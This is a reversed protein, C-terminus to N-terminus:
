RSDHEQMAEAEALVRARIPNEAAPEDVDVLAQVAADFMRLSM